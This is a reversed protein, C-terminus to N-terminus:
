PARKEKDGNWVKKMKGHCLTPFTLFFRPVSVTVLALAM